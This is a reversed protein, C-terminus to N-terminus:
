ATLMDLTRGKLAWDPAEQCARLLAVRSEYIARPDGRFHVLYSHIERDIEMPAEPSPKVATLRFLCQDLATM